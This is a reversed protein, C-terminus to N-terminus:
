AGLDAGEVGLDALKAVLLEHFGPSPDHTRTWRGADLLEQRTPRLARLDAEHRGGGQDVAAYLKFHIQDIRGAFHVILDEGFVRFVLRDEFGQPL